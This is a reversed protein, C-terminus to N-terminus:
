SLAKRLYGDLDPLYGLRRAKRVLGPRRTNFGVEECGCLYGIQEVFQLGIRTLDEAAQGCAATIWLLRGGLHLQLVLLLEGGAASLLFAPGAGALQEADEFHAPLRQLRELAEQRTLEQVQAPAM